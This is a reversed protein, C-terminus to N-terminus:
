SSLCSKLSITIIWSSFCVEWVFGLLLASTDLSPYEYTYKQFIKMKAELSLWANKVYVHRSQLNVQM